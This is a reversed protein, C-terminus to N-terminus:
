DREALLYQSGSRIAYLGVASCTASRFCSVDELQTAVSTSPNPTRQIAWTKGNWHEALTVATSTGNSATISAFGVTICSTASVCSLGGLETFNSGSPNPIVQLKWSRGNWQEALPVPGSGLSYFGTAICAKASSCSVASLAPFQDASPLAPMAEVKWAHGNWYEAATTGSPSSATSLDGVAMCSAATTCSIAELGVDTAGAPNPTVQIKWAKGNWHEALTQYTKAKTDGGVAICSTLSGCSVAGFGPFRAAAPSPPAQIKWGTAASAGTSAIAV